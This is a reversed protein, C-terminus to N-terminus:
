LVRPSTPGRIIEAASVVADGGREMREIKVIDHRNKGQNKIDPVSLFPRSYGKWEDEEEHDTTIAMAKESSIKLSV